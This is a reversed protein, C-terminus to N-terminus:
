EKAGWDFLKTISCRLVKCLAVKYRDKIGKTGAEWCSIASPTVNLLTALENQSLRRAMRLERLHCPLIFEKERTM